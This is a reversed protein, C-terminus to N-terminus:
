RKRDMYLVGSAFLSEAYDTSPPRGEKRDEDRFDRAISTLERMADGAVPHAPTNGGGRGELWAMLFPYLIAGRKMARNRFAVQCPSPKGPRTSQCFRADERTTEFLTGCAACVVSRPEKRKRPVM